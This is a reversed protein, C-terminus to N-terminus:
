SLGHARLKRYLTSRSMGLAEAMEGRRGGHAEWADLLLQRERDELTVAPAPAHGSYVEHGEGRLEPSLEELQLVPGDGLVYAAQLVNELERVNGPWPHARMAEWAPRSIERIQRESRQNFREILVWTLLELDGSRERLPPMRLVVVRLRYMLDERFVRKEVLDRLSANTASVIRVDVQREISGGLPMYHRDQLVRLLRGQLELPIEAVEDLFLTGRDALAFLGERSRVAGTFAGKVHGFLQSALMESTFTACNVAQFPFNARPGSRHLARAALEKGTGSEGRLLVTIDTRAARRLREFLSLMEPSQTLLGHFDVPSLDPRKLNM